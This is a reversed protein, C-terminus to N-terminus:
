LSLDPCETLFGSTDSFSFPYFSESPTENEFAQLVFEYNITPSKIFNIFNKRYICGVKKSDMCQLALIATTIMQISCKEFTHYKNIWNRLLYFLDKIAEEIIPISERSDLISTMNYSLLITYYHYWVFSVTPDFDNETALRASTWALEHPLTSRWKQLDKNFTSLACLRESTTKLQTNELKHLETIRSLLILSKMPAAVLLPKDPDSYMYDEFGAKIDPLEDTEPVTSNSLTLVTERGYLEAMFHDVLYCGWYIRVRVEIDMKTLSENGADNLAAPNLQLGIEHVIRFALGSFYWASSNDGRGIDYFALCLLSQILALKSSPPETRGSLCDRRQFTKKLIIDRSLDYYNLSKHYLENSKSSIKSGLAAIAYILEESCYYSKSLGDQFFASLLAERYVFFYHSPYLWKFFLSLSFTIYPSKALASWSESVFPYEKNAEPLVQPKKVTSSNDPLSSGTRTTLNNYFPLIQSNEPSATPLMSAIDGQASAVRLRSTSMSNLINQRESKSETEKMKILSNELEAVYNQLAKAYGKNRNLKRNDFYVPVCIIGLKVCSSCPVDM